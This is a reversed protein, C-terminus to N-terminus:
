RVAPTPSAPQYFYGPRTRVTLKGRAPSQGEIRLKHYGPKTGPPVAFEFVYQNRIDHAIQAALAEVEEVSGPFYAAGGSAKAVERLLKEANRRREGAASSLLGIAYVTVDSQQVLRLLAAQEIDSSDDEGDTIVLLVRKEKAGARLHEVAMRIADRVATGGWMQVKSLGRELAALDNTFDQTLEVTDKFDVIFVEDAPHSARVLALAAANVAPRLPTMSASSDVAIGMSVPIDQNSFGSLQLQKGDQYVRFAQQPLGTVLRQQRDFVAAHLVVRDVQARFVAPGQSVAAPLAPPAGASPPLLATGLTIGPLSRRVLKVIWGGM